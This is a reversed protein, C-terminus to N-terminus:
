PTALLLLDVLIFDYYDQCRHVEKETGTIQKIDSKGLYCMGDQRLLQCAIVNERWYSNIILIAWNAHISDAIPIHPEM